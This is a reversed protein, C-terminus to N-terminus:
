FYVVTVAILGLTMYILEANVHDFGAVLETLLQDYENPDMVRTMTNSISSFFTALVTGALLVYLINYKTKKFLAGYIITGLVGMLVIDLFFSVYKNAAFISSSGLVFVVATHILIYLSNM